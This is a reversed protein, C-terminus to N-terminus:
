PAVGVVERRSAADLEDITIVRGVVARLRSALDARRLALEERGPDVLDLNGALRLASAFLERSLSEPGHLRGQLLMQQGVGGCEDLFEKEVIANRPVRAALREAVVLQADVFSRLVRHAMLFPARALIARGDDAEEWGPDLRELEATLRARYTDRDPFFFEFKLLDRLAFAEDWREDPPSLLVLEALARDVFHHIASNRYFAAVLHQGREIAHVPEEGGAYTTVVNSAALAALVGRVGADTDLRDGGPRDGGHRDGGPPVEGHPLGRELVYDRVPALVRRVQGLTLARDRVGLLALTVLATATIPTVRNIGVAVEFAAKQLALRRDPSSALAARLSIPEAFRVQATGIQSLQAKAYRALWALGEGKKAAGAQEAAMAAVERLQDYTISVPVLHVDSVRDREVAEAVNALLGFKPSRLKGTRSRGGEMYWELNFRKSLLFGFYERVALKYIEDDGFSRRIFVVGARKAVPGVPWFRLNEGGLVHNRPFDHEALVDALLLPDAYSRHSPLFVLADRRNLERLRELGATDVQVDWARAHLPRLAGTLLDVAMPSMSAVLTQLDTRAKAAVEAEPLELREALATVEHRFSTTDEIMEVIHKPVKYRDGVLAREARELALTAQGAVFRALDGDGSGAGNHRARLDSVTAPEAVVVPARDPERRAIRAHLRAPPRRPDTFSALDAWRVRRVGNREKPLWAVRAATVVTAGDAEALPRTLAPAHLPLVQSPELGNERAWQAILSRETESTAEVLLITPVGSGETAGVTAQTPGAETAIGM